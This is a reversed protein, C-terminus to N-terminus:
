AAKGGGGLLEDCLEAAPLALASRLADLVPDGAGFSGDLRDLLARLFLPGLNAEFQALLTLVDERMPANADLGEILRRGDDDSFSEGITESLLQEAYASVDGPRLQVGSHDVVEVAGREGGPNVGADARVRIAGRLRVCWGEVERCPKERAAQTADSDM